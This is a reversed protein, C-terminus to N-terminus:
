NEIMTGELSNPVFYPNTQLKTSGTGHDVGGGGQQDINVYIICPTCRTGGCIPTFTIKYSGGSTFSYNFTKGAGSIIPIGNYEISWHYSVACNEPNCVYTPSTFSYNYNPTLKM